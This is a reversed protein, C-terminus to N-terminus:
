DNESSGGLRGDDVVNGRGAYQAADGEAELTQKMESEGGM